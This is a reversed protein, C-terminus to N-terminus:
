RKALVVQLGDKPQLGNSSEHPKVSHKPSLRLQYKQAITAIILAMEMMAYPKVVCYRPGGGFPFYAYKPLQTSITDLWRDPDFENPRDFYRADRHMLWASMVLITGAPVFYGGIECDQVARRASIPYLPYLRMAEKIVMETYRLRPLDVFSPLRGGLVDNLEAVLKAEVQPHQSLFYWVWSMTIATNKHGARLMTAVEDRLEQDTMQNGDADRAAILESLISTPSQDSARCRTIVDYIIEDLRNVAEYFREKTPTQISVALLAPNDLLHMTADFASRVDDMEAALDVGLVNRATVNLMLQILDNLVDRTEGDRWTVLMRATYTVMAEAYPTINKHHFMPQILRRQRQWIEGESRLLGNGWFRRAEGLHETVICFTSNTNTFVHEILEPHNILYTDPELRVIDGYKQASKCLFYLQNRAAVIRSIFRYFGEPGPPILSTALSSETIASPLTRDTQM